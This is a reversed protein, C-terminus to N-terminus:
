PYKKSSNMMEPCEWSASEKTPAKIPASRFNRLKSYLVFLGVDHQFPNGGAPADIRIVPTTAAMTAEAQCPWSDADIRPDQATARHGQPKERLSGGPPPDGQLTGRPTGPPFPLLFLTKRLLWVRFRRLRSLRAKNTHHIRIELKNSQNSCM